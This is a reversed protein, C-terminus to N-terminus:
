DQEVHNGGEKTMQKRAELMSILMGINTEPMDQLLEIHAKKCWRSVEEDKIDLEYILTNLKTLQPTIKITDVGRKIYQVGHEYSPKEKIVKPKVEEELLERGDTDTQAIGLASTLSYRRAYSIVSGIAQARTMGKGVDVPMLITEAIYQGSEHMIVTEISVSDGSNGPLQIISLGYKSLLPRVDELISALDAYNYGYGKKGKFVNQIEGQLKSLASALLEIKESKRM